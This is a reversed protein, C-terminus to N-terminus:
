GARRFQNENSNNTNQNNFGGQSGSQGSASNTEYDTLMWTLFVAAGFASFFALATTDASFNFAWPLAALVPGVALEVYGHTKFPITKIAGFPFNTFLTLALHVGALGYCLNATLGGFGLFTPAGAFAGVVLYDIVGHLKSNIFKKM